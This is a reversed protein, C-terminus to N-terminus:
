TFRSMSLLKLAKWFKTPSCEIEPTGADRNLRVLLTGSGKFSFFIVITQGWFAVYKKGHYDLVMDHMYASCSIDELNSYDM